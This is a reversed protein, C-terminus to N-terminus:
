VNNKKIDRHILFVSASLFGFMVLYRLLGVDDILMGEPGIMIPTLVCMIFSIVGIAFGTNEKNENQTKNDMIVM